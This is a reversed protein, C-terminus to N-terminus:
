RGVTQLRGGRSCNPGPASVCSGLAPSLETGAWGVEGSLPPGAALHPPPQASERGM